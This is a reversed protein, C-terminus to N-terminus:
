QTLERTTERSSGAGGPDMTTTLNCGALDGAFRDVEDLCVTFQNHFWYLLAAGGVGLVAAPVAAWRQPHDTFRVSLAALLAWGVAFGLLVLGDVVPETLVFRVGDFRVLGASTRLWLYGDSSQLIQYVAEGPLGNQASWADHGYQNIARGPDLALATVSAFLAAGLIDRTRRM